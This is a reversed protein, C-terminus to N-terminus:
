HLGCSAKIGVARVYVVKFEHHFIGFKTIPLFNPIVMGIYSEPFLEPIM